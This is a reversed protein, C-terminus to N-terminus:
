VEMSVRHQRNSANKFFTTLSRHITIAIGTTVSFGVADPSSRVLATVVAKELSQLLLDCSHGEKKLVASIHMIGLHLLSTSQLLTLKM